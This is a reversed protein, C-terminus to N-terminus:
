DFRLRFTWSPLSLKIISTALIRGSAGPIEVLVEKLDVRRTETVSLLEDEPFRISWTPLPIEKERSSRNPWFELINRNDTKCGAVKTMSRNIYNETGSRM